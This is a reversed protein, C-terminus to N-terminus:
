CLGMGTNVQIGNCKSVGSLPRVTGSNASAGSGQERLRSAAPPGLVGRIRFHGACRSNGLLQCVSELKNEDDGM